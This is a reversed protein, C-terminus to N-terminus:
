KNRFPTVLCRFDVRQRKARPKRMSLTGLKAFLNVEDGLCRCSLNHGLLVIEPVQNQSAPCLVPLEENMQVHVEGPAGGPSVKQIEPKALRAFLVPINSSWNVRSYDPM